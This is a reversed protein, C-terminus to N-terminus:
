WSYGLTYILKKDTGTTDPAPRNDWDVNYQLNLDVNFTTPIRLGTRIRIFVDSTDELGLFGEHFHFFRVKKDFFPYELNLAWRGAGYDEDEDDDYNTNVYNPGAELSFKTDKTDWFQYGLGGGINTRLDIDAMDDSEFSANNYLYWKKTIFHDYKLYGRTYDETRHSSGNGGDRQKNTEEERDLEAGVTYRNKGTRAVMEADGHISWSETNGSDQSGGLNVRGEWRVPPIEEPNIAAIDATSFSISGSIKEPKIVMTGDESAEAKGKLTTGDILRVELPEGTSIHAIESWAIELKGAYSTELVLKKAELSIVTGTLRDGNKLRIEGGYCISVTGTSLLVISLCYAVLGIAKHLSM